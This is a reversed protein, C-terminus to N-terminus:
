YWDDESPKEGFDFWSKQTGGEHKQQKYAAQKKKYDLAANRMNKDYNESPQFLYFSKCNIVEGIINAVIDGEESFMIADKFSIDHKMAFELWLFTYFLSKDSGYYSHFVPDSAYNQIKIDGPALVINKPIILKKHQEIILDDIHIYEKVNNSIEEIFKNFQSRKRLLYYDYDKQVSFLKDFEIELEARSKNAYEKFLANIEVIIPYEGVEHTKCIKIKIWYKFYEDDHELILHLTQFQESMAGNKDLDYKSIADILDGEEGERDVYLDIEDQSLRVMNDIKMAKFVSQFQQLIGLANFTEKEIKKSTAGGTLLFLFKKYTKTPVISEIKTLQSPDISLLASLYM